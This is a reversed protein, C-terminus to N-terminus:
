KKDSIVPADVQIGYHQCQEAQWEVLYYISINKAEEQWQLCEAIESKEIGYKLALFFTIGLIIALVLNLLTKM